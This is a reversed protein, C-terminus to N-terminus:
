DVLIKLWDSANRVQLHEPWINIVVNKGNLAAFDNRVLTKETNRYDIMHRKMLELSPQCYVNELVPLLETDSIEFFETITNHLIQDVAVKYGFQHHLIM